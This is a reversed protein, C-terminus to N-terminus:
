SARGRVNNWSPVVRSLEAGDRLIADVEPRFGSGSDHHLVLPPLLRLPARSAKIGRALIRHAAMGPRPAIPLISLAGFRGAAAAIVLDLGDARFIVTATGGPRALAAAARFWPDLGAEGLMHADARSRAPSASTEHARNFPPNFVVAAAVGDTLGTRSAIDTEVVEVRMAFGRNAQRAVAARACEAATASREVLMVSTEPCREAVCLGAIGAGAGLDVVVGETRTPVSAALLVAELGARHHGAAPQVAEVRGGVFADVTVAREEIAVKAPAAAASM